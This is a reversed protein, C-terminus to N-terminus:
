TSGPWAVIVGVIVVVVVAGVIVLLGRRHEKSFDYTGGAAHTVAEAIEDRRLDKIHLKKSM